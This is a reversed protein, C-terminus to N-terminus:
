SLDSTKLQFPKSVKSGTVKKGAKISAFFIPNSLSACCLINGPLGWTGQKIKKITKTM